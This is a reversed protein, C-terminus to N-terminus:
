ESTTVASAGHQKVMAVMDDYGPIYLKRMPAFIRDEMAMGLLKHDGTRLGELLMPARSLNHMADRQSVRETNIIPYDEIEPVAVVVRLGEVPLSRYVLTEGDLLSTTLGGLIATVVQDPRRTVTAALTLAQERTLPNGLMNNGGIIGAVLYTVEAGLGVGHPIHNDVRITLGPVTKELSQFLRMLGLVVPHQLGLPFRGAGEGLTEVQLEDDNREVFEVSAHMSIALGLSGLCPGINTVTAPLAIRVKRM